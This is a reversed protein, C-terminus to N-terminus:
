KDIIHRCSQHEMDGCLLGGAGGPSQGPRRRHRALCIRSVTESRGELSCRSARTFESQKRDHHQQDPIMDWVRYRLRLFCTRLHCVIRTNCDTGTGPQNPLPPPKCQSTVFHPRPQKWGPKRRKPAQIAHSSAERRARGNHRTSPPSLLNATSTTTTGDPSIVCRVLLHSM